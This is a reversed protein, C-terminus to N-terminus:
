GIGQLYTLTASGTGTGSIRVGRVPFNFNDAASVSVNVLSTNDHNFWTATAASFTPSFVDDSTHQVTYTYVGSVTVEVSANFPTQIYDTVIVQSTGTGTQTVYVPRM